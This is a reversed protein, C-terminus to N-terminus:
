VAIAVAVAVAVAVAIAVAVAVAAGALGRCSQERIMKVKTPKHHAALSSDGFFPLHNEAM